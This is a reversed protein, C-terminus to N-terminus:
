ERRRRVCIGKRAVAYLYIIYDNGSIILWKKSKKGVKKGPFDRVAAMPPLTGTRQLGHIDSPSSTHAHLAAARFAFVEPLHRLWSVKRTIWLGPRCGHASAYRHASAWPYRVPQLYSCASRCSPIRIGVASPAALQSEQYDLTGSPLWPRFRVPVSFGMSIPRAPPILMCLPLESHSYRPLHRALQSEQYDLTGSPLWPRFRVPVSFGMSIPRAPPILMCLPLESHSYRRCIACGATM